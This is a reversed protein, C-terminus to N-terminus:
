NGLLEKYVNYREEDPVVYLVNCIYNDYLEAVTKMMRVVYKLDKMTMYDGYDCIVLTDIKHYAAVHICMIIRNSMSLIEQSKFGLEGFKPVFCSIIDVRDIGGEDVDMTIVDPTYVCIDNLDGSAKNFDFCKSLVESLLTTKYLEEECSHANNFQNHMFNLVCIRNNQRYLEKAIWSSVNTNIVRQVMGFHSKFGLQYESGKRYDYTVAHVISSNVEAKFMEAIERHNYESINQNFM